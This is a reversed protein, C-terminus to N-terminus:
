KLGRKRMSLGALSLYVNTVYKQIQNQEVKGLKLPNLFFEFKTGTFISSFKSYVFAISTDKNTETLLQRVGEACFAKIDSQKYCVITTSGMKNLRETLQYVLIVLSFIPTLMM